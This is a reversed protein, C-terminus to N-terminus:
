KTERGHNIAFITAVAARYCVVVALIEANELVKRKSKLIHDQTRGLSCQFTVQLAEDKAEMPLGRGETFTRYALAMCEWLLLEREPNGDLEFGKMWDDFSQPNVEDLAAKLVRVRAVFGTKLPPSVNQVGWAGRLSQGKGRDLLHRHPLVFLNRERYKNRL